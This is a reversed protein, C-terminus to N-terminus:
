SPKREPKTTGRWAAIDRRLRAIDAEHEVTMERVAEVQERLTEIQLERAAAYFTISGGLELLQQHIRGFGQHAQDLRDLLSGTAIYVKRAPRWLYRHGITALGVIAGAGAAWKEVLTM